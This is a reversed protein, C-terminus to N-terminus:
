CADSMGGSIGGRSVVTIGCCYLHLSRVHNVLERLKDVSLPDIWPDLVERGMDAHIEAVLKDAVDYSVDEIGFVRPGVRVKCCDLIRVAM